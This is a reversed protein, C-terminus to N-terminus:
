QLARTLILSSVGLHMGPLQKGEKLLQKGVPAQSDQSKRLKGFRVGKPVEPTKLVDKRWSFFHKLGSSVAGCCYGRSSCPGSSTSDLHALLMMM